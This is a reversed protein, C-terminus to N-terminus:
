LTKQKYGILYASPIGLLMLSAITFFVYNMPFFTDLAALFLPLTIYALPVSMRFVSIFGADRDTVRKFFAYDSAVEVFSAGIRSMLLLLAWVVASTSSTSFILFTASSMLIFGVILTEKETHFRDFIRGLPAEFVVFPILMITFLIGITSWNFGVTNLLYLPTYIVMGAYFSQLLFNTFFIRNLDQKRSFLSINSTVTATRLPSNALDRHKSVVAIFLLVCMLASITYISQESSASVIFGVILPSIVYASNMATLYNSRVRGTVHETKVTHEVILDLCYLLLPPLAQHIVFLLGVAFASTSLGLGTLSLIELILGWLFLSKAKHHKLLLPISVLGVLTLIAGLTYFVGITKENFYSSLFASNVYVIFAYHLSLLLAAGYIFHHRWSYKLRHM